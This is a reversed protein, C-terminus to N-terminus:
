GEVKERQMFLAQKVKFKHIRSRVFDGIDQAPTINELECILYYISMEELTVSGGVTVIRDRYEQIKVYDTTTKKTTKPKTTKVEELKLGIFHQQVHIKRTEYVWYYGPNGSKPVMTRIIGPIKLIIDRVHRQAIGTAESIEASTVPKGANKVFAEIRDKRTM